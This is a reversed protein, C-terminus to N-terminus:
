QGFPDWIGGWFMVPQKNDRAIKIIGWLRITPGQQQLCLKCQRVHLLVAPAWNSTEDM